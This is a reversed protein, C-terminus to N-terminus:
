VSWQSVVAAVDQRAARVALDANRSGEALREAARGHHREEPARRRDDLRRGSVLLPM